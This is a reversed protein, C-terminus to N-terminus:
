KKQLDMYHGGRHIELNRLFSMGLLVETPYNGKIVVAEVYNQQINGIKVSNLTILYAEEVGGATSVQLKQGQSYDLGISKAMRESLSVSTAGTDILVPLSKGNIQGTTHFMGQNDAFLRFRDAKNEPAKASFGAQIGEDLTYRYHRGEIELTAELSDSRILKVGQHSDGASLTVSEGNVSAVIQNDMLGYIAIDPLAQVQVSFLCGLFLIITKKISFM